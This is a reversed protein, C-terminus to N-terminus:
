FQGLFLPDRDSVIFKPWGHLKFVGDLYVQAVDVASYPHHLAFFHAYKSLRDVEVYIVEKGQSKPLGTIFDMSVESWVEQPIPLPQLLGPYTSPDYKSAQCVVCNRVFSSVDKHLVKWSFFTKLRRTTADRGSYGGEFFADM